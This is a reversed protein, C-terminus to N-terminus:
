VGVMQKKDFDWVKLKFCAIIDKPKLSTRKPNQLEPFHKMVEPL